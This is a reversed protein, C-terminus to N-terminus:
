GLTENVSHKDIVEQLIIEVMKNLTIDRKHAEISLKLIIDDDLDVEM